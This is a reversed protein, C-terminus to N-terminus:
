YPIEIKQDQNQGTKNKLHGISTRNTKQILTIDKRKKYKEQYVKNIKKKSTKKSIAELKNSQISNFLYSLTFM